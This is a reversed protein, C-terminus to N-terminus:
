HIERKVLGMRQWLADEDPFAIGDVTDHLVKAAMAISAIDQFIGDCPPCKSLHAKVEAANLENLADDRLDSLLTLSKSCDM